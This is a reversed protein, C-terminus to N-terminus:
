WVRFLVCGVVDAQRVIRHKTDLANQKLGNIKNSEQQGIKTDVDEDIKYVWHKPM